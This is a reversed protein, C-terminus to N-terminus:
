PNQAITVDHAVLGVDLAAPHYDLHFIEVIGLKPIIPNTSFWITAMSVVPM